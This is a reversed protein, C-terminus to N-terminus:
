RKRSTRSELMLTDVGLGTNPDFLAAVEVARRSDAGMAMAGRAYDSGSGIAFVPDLVPIAVLSPEYLVAGKKTVHIADTEAIKPSKKKPCGESFWRVLLLGESLSGAFGLLSGDPLLHIKQTTMSMTGATAKRDASLSRGDWAITTM